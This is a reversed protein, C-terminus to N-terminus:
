VKSDNTRNSTIDRITPIIDPMIKLLSPVKNTTIKMSSPMSGRIAHAVPMYM